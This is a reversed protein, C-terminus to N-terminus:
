QNVSKSIELAPTSSSPNGTKVTLQLASTGPSVSAITVMSPTPPVVTGPGEPMIPLVMDKWGMEVESEPIYLHVRVTLPTVTSVRVNPM